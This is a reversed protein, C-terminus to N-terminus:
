CGVTVSSTIANVEFNTPGDVIEFCDTLSDGIYVSDATFTAFKQVVTEANDDDAIVSSATLTLNYATNNGRIMMLSDEGIVVNGTAVFTLTGTNFTDTSKEGIWITNGGLWTHDAISFSATGSDGIAGDALLTLNKATNNGFFYLSDDQEVTVDEPSNFQLRDIDVFDGAETGLLIDDTAYLSASTAQVSANVATSLSGGAHIIALRVDSNGSFVTNSDETLNVTDSTNFSVSGANFQDSDSDGLNLYPTDFSVEGAVNVQTTPSDLVSVPTSLSLQNSDNANTLFIRSDQSVDVHGPSSFSLTRTNFSDTASDGITVNAGEFLTSFAVDISANDDDTLDGETNIAVIHATNASFIETASNETIQVTNSANFSLRGANFTDEVTQGITINTGSFEADGVVDITADNRNTITGTSSVALSGASINLLRVNSEQEIELANDVTAKIRTATFSDNSMDGLSASDAEITLNNQIVLAANDLNAVAGDAILTASDSSLGELLIDGGSELRSNGDAILNLAIDRVSDIEASGGVSVTGGEVMGGSSIMLDGTVTTATGLIVDTFSTVITLDNSNITANEADLFATAMITTAGDVSFTAGDGNSSALGDSEGGSGGTPEIRIRLGEVSTDGSATADGLVVDGFPASVTYDTTSIDVGGLAIADGTLDRLGISTVTTNGSVTWTARGSVSGGTLSLDGSVILEHMGVNSFDDSSYVTLNHTDISSELMSVGDVASFTTDGAVVIPSLLSGIHSAEVQFNGTTTVTGLQISNAERLLVDNGIVSVRDGFDNAVSGLSVNGTAGITTLGSVMLASGASQSIVTAGTLSVSDVDYDGQLSIVDVDAIDIRELEPLTAVLSLDQGVDATGYAVFFDVSSAAVTTPTDDVSIQDNGNVTVNGSGNVDVIASDNASGFDVILAGANYSATALLRRTELSQYNTTGSVVRRNSRRSKKSKM